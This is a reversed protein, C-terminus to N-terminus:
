AVSSRARGAARPGIVATILNRYIELDVGSIPPRGATAHRDPEAIDFVVDGAADPAPAKRQRRSRSLAVDIPITVDGTMM